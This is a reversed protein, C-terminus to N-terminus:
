FLAIFEFKAVLIAALSNIPNLVFKNWLRASYANQLDGSRIMANVVRISIYDWYLQGVVTLFIGYKQGISMAVLIFSDGKKV